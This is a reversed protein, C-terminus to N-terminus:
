LTTDTLNHSTLLSKSKLLLYSGPLLPLVINLLWMTTTIILIVSAPIQALGFLLVATGGRVVVDFFQMVPVLSSLLYMSAILSLAPIYTIEIDLMILIFYFQHSFVLYKIVSLVKAKDRISKSIRLVYEQVRQWSYGKISWRLRNLNRPVLFSVGIVALVFLIYWVFSLPKFIFCVVGLGIAGFFLTALMQYMNGLFNLVVIKKRYKKPFYLAKTGYEGTKAPTVFATVHAVLTQRFAEGMHIKHISGVLVKWRYADLSWNLATLILLIAINLYLSSPDIQNQFIDEFSEWDKQLREWVFLFAVVVIM